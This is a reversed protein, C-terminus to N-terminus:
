SQYWPASDKLLQYSRLQGLFKECKICGVTENGKCLVWESTGNRSPRIRDPFSGNYKGMKTDEWRRPHRGLQRKREPKGVLFGTRM